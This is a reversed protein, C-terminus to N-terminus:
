RLTTRRAVEDMYARRLRQARDVLGACFIDPNLLGLEKDSLEELHTRWNAEERVNFIDRDLVSTAHPALAGPVVVELIPYTRETASREVEQVMVHCPIGAALLVARAQAAEAVHTGGPHMTFSTAAAADKLWDPAKGSTLEELNVDAFGNFDGDAGSAEEWVPYEEEEAEAPTEAKRRAIEEALVKQAVETLDSPDIDLLAEDSLSDYHRRLDELDIRV